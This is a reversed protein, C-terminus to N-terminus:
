DPAPEGLVSEGRWLDDLSERRRVLLARGDRVLVEAPRPRSNYNSSMAFGYAGASLVALLDGPRVDEVIRDRALFDGSECLPGVIDARVRGGSARVARIEHHAGYLSPRLLDNMGADVVLFIKDASAKRYLVRTLLVGANGVLYRGPEIWLRVNLGDLAPLLAGALAAPDPATEDRYRIGLGGGLNVDRVTHGRSRLRRVLEAVRTAVEAYVGVDLIQSGVHAHVGLLSLGPRAAIEEWAAVADAIPVGFKEAATGTAIYAHGGAHVEPTVRLAVPAMRGTATAVQSLREAEPLSEVNFAAIGADLAARMEDETKGVGAFVIRDPAAGARLVRGLEGGSVIDFGAGAGVLTALVALNSNTKVAYCVVHPVAGLAADLGAFRDIIAVASYVYAPTGHRAAIADLPVGDCCLVGDHSEFADM